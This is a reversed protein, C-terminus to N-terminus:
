FTQGTTALARQKVGEMPFLLTRERIIRIGGGNMDKMKPLEM